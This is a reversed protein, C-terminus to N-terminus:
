KVTPLTSQALERASKAVGLDLFYHAAQGTNPNRVYMCVVMCPKGPSRCLKPLAGTCEESRTYSNSMLLLCVYCASKKVAGTPTWDIM